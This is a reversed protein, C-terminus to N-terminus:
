RPARSRILVTLADDAAAASVDLAASEDIALVVVSSPSGGLGSASPLDIVRADPVVISATARETGTLGVVDVVDGVALAQVLASSALEVPVAVEGPALASRTTRGDFPVAAAAPESGRDISALGAAVALAALVAAIPRRRRRLHRRVTARFGHLM